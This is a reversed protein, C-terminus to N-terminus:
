RREGLRADIAMALATASHGELAGEVDSDDARGLAARAAEWARQAADLDGRAALAVGLTFHATARDPDLYVAQRLLRVAEDTDGDELASSGAAFREAPDPLAPQVPPRPNPAAHHTTVAAIPARRRGARRPRYCRCSGLNVPEFYDFARWLAEGAGLFLVGDVPLLRALRRLVDDMAEESLYILVNRCFVVDCGEVEAPIPDSALGQRLPVVQARLDAVVEWEDGARAMWRDRRTDDLGDLQATTYVARTTAEVAAPSVDTAVVRAGPRGAERLTMALSYPEQGLASGACWILPARHRPLITTRLAEFHEDDRFWSSEQITVQTIVEALSRDDRALQSAWRGPELGTGAAGDSVARRLRELLGPDFRLGTRATVVDAAAGVAEEL